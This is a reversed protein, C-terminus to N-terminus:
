QDKGHSGHSEANGLVQVGFHPKHKICSNSAKRDTAAKIVNGKTYFDLGGGTKPAHYTARTNNSLKEM